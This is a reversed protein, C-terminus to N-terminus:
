HNIQYQCTLKSVDFCNRRYIASSQDCIPAPSNSMAIVVVSFVMCQFFLSPLSSTNIFRLRIITKRKWASQYSVGNVRYLRNNLRNYSNLMHSEHLGDVLRNSSNHLHAQSFPEATAQQPQDVALVTVDNTTMVHSSNPACVVDM